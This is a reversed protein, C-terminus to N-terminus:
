GAILKVLVKISVNIRFDCESIKKVIFMLKIVLKNVYIM